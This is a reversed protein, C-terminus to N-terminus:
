VAGESIAQIAEEVDAMNRCRPIGRHGQNWPQDMLLNYPQGGFYSPIDDVLVDARIRTKDRNIFVADMSEILGPIRMHTHIWSYKDRPAEWTMPATCVLITHGQERMRRIANPADLDLWPLDAHFGPIRLFKIWDEGLDGYSLRGGPAFDEVTYDTDYRNRHYYCWKQMLDVLTGDLDFMIDLKRM